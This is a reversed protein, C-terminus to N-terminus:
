DCFFTNTLHPTDSVVKADLSETKPDDLIRKVSLPVTTPTWARYAAALAEDFNEADSSHINKWATILSKFAQKDQTTSPLAGNHQVFIELKTTAFLIGFRM